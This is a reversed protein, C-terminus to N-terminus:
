IHHVNGMFMKFRPTTSMNEYLYMITSRRPLVESAITVGLISNYKGLYRVFWERVLLPYGFLEWYKLAVHGANGMTEEEVSFRLSGPYSTPKKNATSPHKSRKSIIFYYQLFAASKAGRDLWVFVERRFNQGEFAKNWVFIRWRTFSMLTKMSGFKWWYIKPTWATYPRLSTRPQVGSRRPLRAKKVTATQLPPSTVIIQTEDHFRNTM